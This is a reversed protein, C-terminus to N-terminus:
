ESSKAALVLSNWTFVSKELVNTMRESFAWNIQGLKPLLTPSLFYLNRYYLEEFFQFNVLFQEPHGREFKKCSIGSRRLYFCKRRLFQDGKWLLCLEDSGIRITPDTMLPLTQGISFNTLFGFIKWFHNQTCEKYSKAGSIPDNWTFVIKELFNTVKECNM